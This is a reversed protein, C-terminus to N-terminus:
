KAFFRPFLINTWAKCWSLMWQWGWHRRKYILYDRLAFGKPSYFMRVRQVLPLGPLLKKDVRRNPECWGLVASACCTTFGEARALRAYDNDALSHRFEGCFVGVRQFVERGVLVANGSMEGDFPVPVGTPMVRERKENWCGYFIERSDAEDYLTGVVMGEGYRVRVAAYDALLTAVAGDALWVDDNLWLYFDYDDHEAATQWALRMGGSWFLDGTGKIVKVQPFRERVRAGTGDPSADDVLFVDRQCGDPLRQAFLRELGRLTVEVRNYCTLLVAVKLPDCRM